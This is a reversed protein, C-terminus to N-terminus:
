KRVKIVNKQGDPKIIELQYVGHAMSNNLQITETNNGNQHNMEKKMILQGSSNLLRLQYTGAPQHLFQLSIQDGQLPNPYVSLQPITSEIFIRVITSYIKKDDNAVGIIRYCNVGDITNLDKFSYEGNFNNNVEIIAEESFHIGDVSHEIVYHKL